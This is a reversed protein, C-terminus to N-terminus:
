GWPLISGATFQSLSPQSPGRAPQPVEQGKGWLGAKYSILSLGCCPATREGGGWARDKSIRGQLAWPRVSSHVRAQPRLHSETAGALTLLFPGWLLGRQGRPDGQGWAAAM